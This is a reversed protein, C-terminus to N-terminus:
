QNYCPLMACGFCDLLWPSRRTLEACAMAPLGSSTERELALFKLVRHLTLAAKTSVCSAAKRRSHTSEASTCHGPECFDEPVVVAPRHGQSAVSAKECGLEVFSAPLAARAAATAGAAPDIAVSMSDLAVGTRSQAHQGDTLSTKTTPRTGSASHEEAPLAALAGQGM